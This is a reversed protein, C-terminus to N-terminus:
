QMQARSCSLKHEGPRLIVTDSSFEPETNHYLSRIHGYSIALTGFNGDITMNEDMSNQLLDRTVWQFGQILQQCKSCSDRYSSIGLVLGVINIPDTGCLQHMFSPLKGVLRLLLISESDVCNNKWPGSIIRQRLKEEMAKGLSIGKKKTPLKYIVKQESTDLMDQMANVIRKARKFELDRTAFFKGGSLYRENLDFVKHKNINNEQYHITLFGEAINPFKDTKPSLHIMEKIAKLFYDKMINNNKQFLAPSYKEGNFIYNPSYNYHIDFKVDQINWQPLTTKLLNHKDFVASVVKFTQPNKLDITQAQLLLEDEIKIKEEDMLDEQGQPSDLLIEKKNNINIEMSENEKGDVLVSEIGDNAKGQPFLKRELDYLFNIASTHNQTASKRLHELAKEQNKEGGIINFLLIAYNYQGAPQGQNASMELYRAAEAPDQLGGEGRFAMLAYNNQASAHGQDAAMKYYRRREEALDKNDEEECKLAYVYQAVAVGQDAAKKFYQFAKPLDVGCGEGNECMLAYDYLAHAYGNNGARKFYQRAANLDKDGGKGYYVMTAYNNQAEPYKLDAAMKYYLRAEPLDIEGGEGDECMVAYNHQAEPYELDAAKKYYCREKVQDKPGGIGEGLCAAYTGWINGLRKPELLNNKQLCSAYYRFFELSEEENQNLKIQSFEASQDAKQFKPSAHSLFLSALNLSAANEGNELALHSWFLLSEHLKAIQLAINGIQDPSKQFNYKFTKLSKNFESSLDIEKLSFLQSIDVGNSMDVSGLQTNKLYDSFESKYKIKKLKANRFFNTIKNDNEFEKEILTIARANGNLILAELKQLGKKKNKKFEIYALSANLFSKSLLQGETPISDFNDVEDDNIKSLGKSKIHNLYESPVIAGAGRLRSFEAGAEQWKEAEFAEIAGMLHAQVLCPFIQSILFCFVFLYRKILKNIMKFFDM